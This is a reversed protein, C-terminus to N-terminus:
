APSIRGHSTMERDRKGKDSAIEKRVTRLRNLRSRVAERRSGEAALNKADGRAKQLREHTMAIDRAERVSNVPRTDDRACRVAAKM